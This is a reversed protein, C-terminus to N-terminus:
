LLKSCLQFEDNSIVKSPPIKNVPKVLHLWRMPVPNYALTFKFGEVMGNKSTKCKKSPITYAKKGVFSTM